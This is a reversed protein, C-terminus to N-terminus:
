SKFLKKIRIVTKKACIIINIKNVLYIGETLHLKKYIKKSEKSKKYIYYNYIVFNKINISFKEKDIKYDKTYAVLNIM